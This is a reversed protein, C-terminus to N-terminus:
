CVRLYRFSSIWIQFFVLFFGFLLLFVILDPISKTSLFLEFNFNIKRPKLQNQKFTTTGTTSFRSTLLKKKGSESFWRGEFIYCSSKEREACQNIMGIKNKIQHTIKLHISNRQMTYCEYLCPIKRVIFLNITKLLANTNLIGIFIQQENIRTSQVKRKHFHICLLM